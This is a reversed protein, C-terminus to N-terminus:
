HIVARAALAELEPNQLTVSVNETAPKIELLAGIPWAARVETGDGTRVIVVRDAGTQNQLRLREGIRLSVDMSEGDAIVKPGPADM